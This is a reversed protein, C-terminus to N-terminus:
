RQRVEFGQPNSRQYSRTDVDSFSVPLIQWRGDADIEIIARLPPQCQEGERSLIEM